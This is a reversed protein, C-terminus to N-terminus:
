RAIQARISAAEDASFRLRGQAARVFEEYDWCGRMLGTDAHRPTPLLLHGMEHAMAAGVVVARPVGYRDAQEAARRYFVYAALSGQATHIAVGLVPRAADRLAGPEDDRVVILISGPEDSWRLPVGISEYTADLEHQAEVITAPSASSVNVVHLCVALLCALSM